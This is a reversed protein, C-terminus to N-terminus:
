DKREYFLTAEKYTGDKQKMALYHTCNKGKYEITLGEFYYRNEEIKILPFSVYSDKEEWGTFDPDFHKVKYVLSNRDPEILLMEYFSPGDEMVMRFTGVMVGGLVPAFNEEVVGGFGSGVWHGAYWAMDEISATPRMEATDLRLTNETLAIQSYSNTILCYFLCFCTIKLM